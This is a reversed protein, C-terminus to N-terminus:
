AGVSAGVSTGVAEGLWTGVPTGVGVLVRVLAGVSRSTRVVGAGRDLVVDAGTRGKDFVIM